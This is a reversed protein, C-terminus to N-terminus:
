GLADEREQNGCTAVHATCLVIGPVREWLSYHFQAMKLQVVCCSPEGLLLSQSLFVFLKDPFYLSCWWPILSYYPSLVALITM